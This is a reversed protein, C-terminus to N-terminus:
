LAREDNHDEEGYGFVYRLISWNLPPPDPTRFAAGRAKPPTLQLSSFRLCRVFEEIYPLFEFVLITAMISGIYWIPLSQTKWVFIFSAVETGCGFLALFQGWHLAVACVIAMLPIIELFSHIHQEIPSVRRATVAYSVDWMATIEHILFAVIMVLIVLVNIELFMGALLPIAAQAFMLLHIASEKVGSTSQIKTARHCLWDAFGAVLWIPLVFFLLISTTPESSM